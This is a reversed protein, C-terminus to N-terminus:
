ILVTLPCDVFFLVYNVLTSSPSDVSERSYQRAVAAHWESFTAPTEFGEGAIDVDTLYLGSLALLAHVIFPSQRDLSAVDLSPIHLFSCFEISHHRAYFIELAQQLLASSRHGADQGIASVRPRKRASAEDGPVITQTPNTVDKPSTSVLNSTPWSCPVRRLICSGCTPHVGNCKTKRRRSEM